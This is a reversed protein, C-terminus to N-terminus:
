ATYDRLLAAFRSVSMPPRDSTGDSTGLACAVTDLDSSGPLMSSNRRALVYARLYIAYNDQTEKTTM